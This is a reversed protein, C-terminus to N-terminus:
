NVSNGNLYSTGGNGNFVLARCGTARFRDIGFSSGVSSALLTWMGNLFTYEKGQVIKKDGPLTEGTPEGVTLKNKVGTDDVPIQMPAVGPRMVMLSDGASLDSRKIHDADKPIIFMDTYESM